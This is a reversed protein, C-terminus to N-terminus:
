KSRSSFSLSAIIGLLSIIMAIMSGLYWRGQERVDKIEDRLAKISETQFLIKETLIPITTASEPDLVLISTLKHVQASLDELKLTPKAVVSTASGEQTQLETKPTLTLSAGNDRTNKVYIAHDLTEYGNKKAILNYTGKKLQILLPTEGIKDNDLFIEAKSPSSNILVPFKGFYEVYIIIGMPLIAFLTAFLSISIYHRTILKSFVSM